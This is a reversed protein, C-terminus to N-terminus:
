ISVKEEFYRSVDNSINYVDSLISSNEDIYEATKFDISFVLDIAYTNEEAKFYSHSKGLKYGEGPPTMKIFNSIVKPLRLAAFQQMFGKKKMLEEFYEDVNGQMYFYSKLYEDKLILPKCINIKNAKLNINLYYGELGKSKLLADVKKSLDECEAMLEEKTKIYKECSSVISKLEKLTCKEDKLYLQMDLDIYGEVLMRDVAIELSKKIINSHNKNLLEKKIDLIEQAIPKLKNM